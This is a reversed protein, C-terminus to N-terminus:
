LSRGKYRTPPRLISRAPAVSRSQGQDLALGCSATPDDRERKTFLARVTALAEGLRGRLSLARMRLSPGCFSPPAVYPGQACPPKRPLPGRWPADLARRAAHGPPLRLGPCKRHRWRGRRCVFAGPWGELLADRASSGPPWRPSRVAPPRPKPRRQAASRPPLGWAPARSGRAVPRSALVSRMSAWIRARKAWATRGAGLGTGSSSAWANASIVARRRCTTPISVASFFRRPAAVVLATRPRRCACTLHNSFSSERVSLSRSSAITLLGVQRSFSSSKRPTGPTPGTTALVSKASSGSSPLRWGLCSAAKTPTAGSLLSEPAKRPLRATHPPLVVTLAANYM